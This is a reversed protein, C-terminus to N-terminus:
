STNDLSYLPKKLRWILVPKRVDEEPKVFVDCILVKSQLFASRMDVSGLKFGNNAAVAILLKFREKAGM